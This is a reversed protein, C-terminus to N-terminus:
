KKKNAQEYITNAIAIIEDNSYKNLDEENLNTFKLVIDGCFSLQSMTKYEDEKNVAVMLDNLECRKKWTIQNIEIEFEKFDQGENPKIKVSM